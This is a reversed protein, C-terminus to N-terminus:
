PTEILVNDQDTVESDSNAVDTNTLRKYLQFLIFHDKNEDPLRETTNRQKFREIREEGVLEAFTQLDLHPQDPPNWCKSFDINSPDFPFLGTARFGHKLVDNSVGTDIVHKLLPAFNKSTVAVNGSERMWDRLGKKWANKLPKFASVAAPPLLRTADPYVAILVIGLKECEESVQYTLRTKQGDVFLIVPKKVHKDQLFEAFVNVLYDRFLETKMWGSDSRGFGWAHPVSAQVEKPVRTYPYVIYPPAVTGDAGFTFLVTWNTHATSKDIEYIYNNRKLPLVKSGKPCLQFCTEDANYIRSPDQLIDLSHGKSVLSETIQQFWKRIDQEQVCANAATVAESTQNTIEPNRKLFAEYWTRGPM